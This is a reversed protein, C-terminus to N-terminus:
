GLCGLATPRQLCDYFVYRPKGRVNQESQVRLTLPDAALWIPKSLKHWYKSGAFRFAIAFRVTLNVKKIGANSYSHSLVRAASTSGDGLRWRFGQPSFRVEAPLGL